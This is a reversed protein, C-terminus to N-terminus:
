GLARRLRGDLWLQSLNRGGKAKIWKEKTMNRSPVIREFETHGNDDRSVVFLRQNRDFLDIADLATPNHSTLFVQIPRLSSGISAGPLQCVFRVIHEVLLRVMRPNLTGDVNDLAFIRPSATHGLLTAVFTLYLTGESADYPSLTNRNRVMHKDRMYVTEGVPPLFYPVIEPDAPRVAIRNTWGTEWIIKLVERIEKQRDSSEARDGLLEKLALALRGGTLGLPEIPRHDQVLGRMVTTQPAYIAYESVARLADRGSSEVKAIRGHTDWMGRFPEADLHGIAQQTLLTRHLRAGHPSRGLVRAGDEVLNESFYELHSSQEGARISASYSLKEIDSELRFTKPIDRNKFSSKFIHPLSLRVGKSDLSQPDIGRGLCASLVGVAELLNSKGSGNAGVFVNVRGFELDAHVISKFNRIQLRSIM